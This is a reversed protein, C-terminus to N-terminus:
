GLDFNNHKFFRGSGQVHSLFGIIFPDSLNGHYYDRQFVRLYNTLNRSEGSSNAGDVCCSFYQRCIQLVITNSPPLLTLKQWDNSDNNINNRPCIYEEIDNKSALIMSCKDWHRGRIVDLFETMEAKNLRRDDANDFLFLVRKQSLQLFIEVEECTVEGDNDTFWCLIYVFWHFYLFSYRYKTKISYLNQHRPIGCM